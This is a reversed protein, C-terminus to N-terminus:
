AAIQKRFEDILGILAAPPDMPKIHNEKVFGLLTDKKIEAEMTDLQVLVPALLEKRQPPTANALEDLTDRDLLASLESSFDRIRDASDLLKNVNKAVEVEEEPSECVGSDTIDDVLAAVLETLENAQAECQKQWTLGLTAIARLSPGGGTEKKAKGGDPVADLADAIETVLNDCVLLDKGKLAEVAQKFLDRIDGLQDIDSRNRLRIGIENLRGRIEGEDLGLLAEAEDERTEGTELTSGGALKAIDIGLVRSVWEDRVSPTAESRQLTDSM